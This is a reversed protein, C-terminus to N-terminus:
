SIKSSLSQVVEIGHFQDGIRACTYADHWCILMQTDRGGKLSREAQINSFFNLSCACSSSPSSMSEGGEGGEKEEEGEEEEGTLWM